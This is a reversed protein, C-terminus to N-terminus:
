ASELQADVSIEVNGKLAASIPCGEGAGQAAKEFADADIGPVVGRVKLESKTVAFGGEVPGFSVAAGVTLRQPQNGAESLEHSLAMAFCAAHSAALLEEPSTQAGGETRARWNVDLAPAVGSDLETTGSGEALSGEWTAEARRTAM